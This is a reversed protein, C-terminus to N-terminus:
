AAVEALLNAHDERPWDLECTRARATNARFGLKIGLRRLVALTHENYSNCPHSMALPPAGLAQCLHEYNAAYEDWQGQPSLREIRTPHTHSHLGIVHEEAHLERLCDDDMWLRRTLESVNVKAEAMMADMVATFREPGLIEDRVYRFRRDSESYFGFDKLYDLPDFRELGVEVELSLPSADIAEFFAEYFADLDHFHVMRFSRYVELKEIEGQLVSSYVFWFATLGRRRLIPLAVEYQCRLNDDFTLCLDSERPGGRISRALWERAPLIRGPGVRDILEELQEAGISGQSVPHGAGHFHHFMIGRPAMM